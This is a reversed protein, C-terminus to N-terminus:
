YTHTHTHTHTKPDLHKDIKNVLSSKSLNKKEGIKCGEKIKDDMADQKMVNMCKYPNRQIGKIM